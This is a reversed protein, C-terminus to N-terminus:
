RRHRVMLVVLGLYVFFGPLILQTGWHWLQKKRDSFDSLRPYKWESGEAGLLDDRGVLWNCTDLLLKEKAPKLETGTFLGGHGIVAVRVKDAKKGDSGAWGVPVDANVAVALPFPGNGKKEMTGVQDSEKPPEPRYAKGMPFPRDENWSREDSRMFEPDFTLKDRDKGIYYVPRAYPIKLDLDGGVSHGAFRLSERIPNAALKKGPREDKADTLGSVNSDTWDFHVPPLNEGTHGVDLEQRTSALEKLEARYLIMHRGLKINLDNLLTDVGDSPRPQMGQMMMQQMMQAPITNPGFCALMPKGAALYEKLAKLQGDDLAHVSIPLLQAPRVTYVTFRPLIILDCDALLSKLREHHDTQRRLDRASEVNLAEREKTAKEQSKRMADREERFQATRRDLFAIVDRELNKREQAPLKQLKKLNEETERTIAKKVEEDDEIEGARVRQGVNTEAVIRALTKDDGDKVKKLHEDYTQFIKELTDAREKFFDAEEDLDEYRSEEYSYVVPERFNKKIVIERVDFGNSDLAKGFGRLGVLEHGHTGLLSDDAVLLGVRPRKTDINLVRRAFADVGRGQHRLVLNGRGENDDKSATKDLQYFANFSLRQVKGSTEGPERSYFFISNEPATDLAKRLDERAPSGNTPHTLEELKRDIDEDDSELEVVRFQPGLERLQDVLDKVKEAVKRGAAKEFRDTENSQESSRLRSFNASRQSVVIITEGRLQKLQQQLEPAVTFVRDRTFDWRHYHVFSLANIAVLIATALLLQVVVQTGASGRQGSIGSIGLKIENALVGLAALGGVALLAFGIEPFGVLVLVLGVGALMAGTLGISRIMLHRQLAQTNNVAM